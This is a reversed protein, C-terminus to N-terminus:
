EMGWAFAMGVWRWKGVVGEWPIWGYGCEWEYACGKGERKDLFVGRVRMCM